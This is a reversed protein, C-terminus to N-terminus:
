GVQFQFVDEVLHRKLLKFLEVFLHRTGALAHAVGHHVEGGVIAARTQDPDDVLADFAAAAQRRAQEGEGAVYGFRDVFMIAQTEGEVLGLFDRRGFPLEHGVHGMLDAVREVGDLAEAFGTQFVRAGGVVIDQLFDLLAGTLELVGHAVDQVEGAEVPAIDGDLVNGKIGDPGEFFDGRLELM